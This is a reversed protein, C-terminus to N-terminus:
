VSGLVTGRTSVRVGWKGGDVLPQRVQTGGSLQQLEVSLLDGLKVHFMLLKQLHQLLVPADRLVLDSM